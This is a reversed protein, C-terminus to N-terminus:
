GMFGFDKLVTTAVSAAENRANNTYQWRPDKRLEKEFDYISRTGVKGDPLTYALAGRVKPDFLDIGSDPIELISSMSQIYPDALTKLNIGAKIKDALAPFAEAASERLTNFATNEDITGTVISNAYSTAAGDSLLLGNDAAFNKLAVFYKGSPGDPIALSNVEQKGFLVDQKVKDEIWLKPDEANATLYETKLLEGNKYTYKITSKSKGKESKYQKTLEPLWTTLEALNADRGKYKQFVTNVYDALTSAPPINSSIQTSTYVGSKKPKEATTDTGEILAIYQDYAEKTIEGAALQDDYFKRKEENTM